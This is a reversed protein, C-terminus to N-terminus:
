CLGLRIAVSYTETRQTVTNMRPQTVRSDSHCIKMITRPIERLIKAHYDLIKQKWTSRYECNIVMNVDMEVVYTIYDASLVSKM